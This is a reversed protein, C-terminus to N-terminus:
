GIKIVGGIKYRIDGKDLMRLIYAKFYNKCLWGQNAKFTTNQFPQLILHCMVLYVAM